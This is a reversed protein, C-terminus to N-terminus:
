PTGTDAAREPLAHLLLEQCFAYPLNLEIGLQSVFEGGGKPFTAAEGDKQLPTPPVERLSRLSLHSSEYPRVRGMSDAFCGTHAGAEGPKAELAPSLRRRM